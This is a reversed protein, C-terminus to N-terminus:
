AQSAPRRRRRLEAPVRDDSRLPRLLRGFYGGALAIVGATFLTGFLTALPAGAVRLGAAAVVPWRGHLAPLVLRPLVLWVLLEFLSAIVCWRGARVLMRDRQPGLLFAGAALLLAATLGATLLRSTLTRLGSLSTPVAANGLLSPQARVPAAPSGTLVRHLPSHGAAPAIPHQSLQRSLAAAAAPDLTRLRTLIAATAAAQGRSTTLDGSHALIRPLQPDAVVTNAVQRARADSVGPDANRIQSSLAQSALSKGQPTSIMTSLIQGGREPHLAVTSFVYLPILLGGILLALTLLLGSLGQRM